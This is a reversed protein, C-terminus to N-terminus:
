DIKLTRIYDAYYLISPLIFLCKKFAKELILLNTLNDLIMLNVSKHQFYIVQNKCEKFRYVVDGFQVSQSGKLILKYPTNILKYPINNGFLTNKVKIKHKEYFAVTKMARLMDNHKKNEQEHWRTLCIPYLLTQIAPQVSKKCLYELFEYIFVKCFGTLLLSDFEFTLWRYDTKIPRHSGVINFHQKIKKTYNLNLKSHNRYVFGVYQDTYQLVFERMLVQDSMQSIVDTIIALKRLIAFSPEKVAHFTLSNLKQLKSNRQKLIQKQTKFLSKKPISENNNNAANPILETPINADCTLQSCDEKPILKRKMKKFQSSVFITKMKYFKFM